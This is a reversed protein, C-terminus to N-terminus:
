ELVFPNFRTDYDYVDLGEKRKLFNVVAYTLPTALAEYACKLLWEMVIIRMIADTPFVGAFAIVSFITTDFLQGVLTSGITRSWLWRGQTLIKMKALVTSNTFEGILYATLSAIMLRPTMGLVTEYASQHEWYPAPPLWVALMVIGVVLLNCGFGLWIVLRARRFGYVETLVDAVIYSVPFIVLAVSFELGWLRVPKSATINSILLSTIFLAVVLIFWVSYGTLLPPPQTRSPQTSM